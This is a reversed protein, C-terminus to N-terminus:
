RTRVSCWIHRHYLNKTNRRRCTRGVNWLYKEVWKCPTRLKRLVAFASLYLWEDRGFSKLCALVHRVRRDLGNRAGTVKRLTILFRPRAALSLSFARGRLSFLPSTSYIAPLSYICQQWIRFIRWSPRTRAETSSGGLPLIMVLIWPMTCTAKSTRLTNPVLQEWLRAGSLDIGTNFRINVALSM